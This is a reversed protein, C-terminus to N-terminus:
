SVPYEILNSFQEIESQSVTIPYYGYTLREPPQNPNTDNLSWIIVQEGIKLKQHVGNVSVDAFVNGVYRDMRESTSVLVADLDDALNAAYTRFDSVFESFIRYNYQKSIMTHLLAGITEDDTDYHVSRNLAYNFSTGEDNVIISVLEADEPVAEPAFYTVEASNQGVSQIGTAENGQQDLLYAVYEDLSNFVLAESNDMAEVDCSQDKSSESMNTNSNATNYRNIARINSYVSGAVLVMAFGLIAIIATIRLINKM